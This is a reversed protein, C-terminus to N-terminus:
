KDLDQAMKLNSQLDPLTKGAWAKIEANEGGKSYREFLSVADKHGTDQEAHYEKPFDDGKMGSLNDLMQKHTDDLAMPPDVHAKQALPKLESTTKTHDKIMKEAFTKTPGTTREEALKSSQIEFMDSIAAKTVFDKTTPTVGLVSNVGAKESLTEAHAAAGFGVVAVAVLMPVINTM